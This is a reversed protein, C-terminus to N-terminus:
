QKTPEKEAAKLMENTAETALRLLRNEITAAKRNAEELDKLCNKIEEALLERYTREAKM